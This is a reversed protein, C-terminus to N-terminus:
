RRGRGRPAGRHSSQARQHNLINAEVLVGITENWSPVKINRNLRTDDDAPESEIASERDSSREDRNSAVADQDRDRSRGRGGRRRRRRSREETENEDRSTASSGKGTSSRDSDVETEFSESEFRDDRDSDFEDFRSTERPAIGAGFSSLKSPRDESSASDHRSSTQREGRSAAQSRSERSSPRRTEEREREGESRKPESRERENPAGEDPRTGRRPPRRHSRRDASSDMSEREVSEDRRNKERSERSSRNGRIDDRRSSETNSESPDGMRSPRSVEETAHRASAPEVETSPEEAEWFSPKKKSTSAPKSEPGKTTGSSRTSTARSEASKRVSRSDKAASERPRGEDLPLRPNSPVQEVAGEGAPSSVGFFSAVADWSSRLKSKEAGKMPATPAVPSEGSEVPASVDTASTVNGSPENQNSDQINSLGATTPAEPARKGAADGKPRQPALSPTGLLNALSNWHDSM